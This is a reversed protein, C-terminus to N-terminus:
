RKLISFNVINAPDLDTLASPYVDGIVGVKM